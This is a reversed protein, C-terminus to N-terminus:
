STARLGNVAMFELLRRRRAAPTPRGGGLVRPGTCGLQMAPLPTNTDAGVVVEPQPGLSHRFQWTRVM